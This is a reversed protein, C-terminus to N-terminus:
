KRIPYGKEVLHDHMLGAAADASLKQPCDLSAGVDTYERVPTVDRSMRFGQDCYVMMLAGLSYWPPIPNNMSWFTGKKVKDQHGITSFVPRIDTVRGTSLLSQGEMWDPIEAGLLDLLTPAIDIRESLGKIEGTERAGPLRILLPVPEMTAHHYGHDSSIILITRELLGTSELLRYADRVHRDFDLLADDYADIDWRQDQNAPDSWLRQSPKFRAGHTGMLHIHLFFPRPATRVVREFERMRADDRIFREDPADVAELPDMMPRRLAIHGVRDAIRRTTRALLQRAGDLSGSGSFWAPLWTQALGISRFNAEDFGNLMNLDYPDAYHRMSVEATYYGMAKLRGPLHQYADMGRLVDPPYIMRTTTPLKGTLLSAVSGGTDAANPFHNRSYLVEGKLTDIFPTTERRYGYFALHQSSIGDGSFIIINPWESGAGPQQLIPLDQRKGGGTAISELVVLLGGACLLASISFLVGFPLGVGTRAHWAFLSWGVWAVTALGVLAYVLVAWGRADQIGHGFLTLTFNDLLLVLLLSACLISPLLAVVVLRGRLRRWSGALGTVLALLATITTMLIAAVLAGVLLTGVSEYRSFLNMFSPKTVFFLWESFVLGIAAVM